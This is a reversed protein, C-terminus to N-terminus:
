RHKAADADGRHAVAKPSHGSSQCWGRCFRESCPHGSVPCFFQGLADPEPTAVRARVGRAYRYSEDDDACAGAPCDCVRHPNRPCVHSPLDSQGAVARQDPKHGVQRLQKIIDGVFGMCAAWLSQPVHKDYDARDSGHLGGPLCPDADTHKAPMDAPEM